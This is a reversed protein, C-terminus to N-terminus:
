LPNMRRISPPLKSTDLLRQAARKVPWHGTWSVALGQHRLIVEKRGAPHQITKELAMQVATQSLCSHCSPCSCFQVHARLLSRIETHFYLEERSIVCVGSYATGASQIICYTLGHGWCIGTVLAGPPHPNTKRGWRHDSNQSPSICPLVICIPRNSNLQNDRCSSLSFSLHSMHPSLKVAWREFCIQVSSSIRHSNVESVLVGHLHLLYLTVKEDQAHLSAQIENRKSSLPHRQESRLRLHLGAAPLFRAWCGAQGPGAVGWSSETDM